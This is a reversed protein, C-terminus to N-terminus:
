RAFSESVLERVGGSPSDARVEIWVPNPWASVPSEDATQDEAPNWRADDLTKSRALVVGGTAPDRDYVTVVYVSDRRPSAAWTFELSGEARARSALGGASGTNLHYPANPDLEPPLGEDGRAQWIAVGLVLLAAAALATQFVRRSRAPRAVAHLRNRALSEVRAELGAIVQDSPAAAGARRELEGLRDLESALARLRAMRPDPEAGEAFEGREVLRRVLAEEEANLDHDMDDDHKM